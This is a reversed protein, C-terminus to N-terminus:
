GKVLTHNRRDMIALADKLIQVSNQLNPNEGIAVATDLILLAEYAVLIPQAELQILKVMRDCRVKYSKQLRLRERTRM